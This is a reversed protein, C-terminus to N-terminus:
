VRRVWKTKPVESVTCLGTYEVFQRETMHNSLAQDYVTRKHIYRVTVPDFYHYSEGTQGAEIFSCAKYLGGSDGVNPDSFSVLLKLKPSESKYAGILKSMCYSSLNNVDLGSRVCFRRIERVSGPNLKGLGLQEATKKVTGHRTVGGFVLLCVLTDKFYAGYPSAATGLTGLYHNTTLFVHAEKLPVPRFELDSLQFQIPEEIARLIHYDLVKRLRGLHLEHEWLWVLKYKSYKEIYTAKAKDRPTGSYGNDKFNHLYDGHTEILLNCLPVYFDFSYPGVTFSREFPVKYHSELISAVIRETTPNQLKEKVGPIDFGSESGYLKLLTTRRKIAKCKASGCTLPHAQTYYSMKTESTNDCVYCKYIITKECLPFIKTAKYGFKVFTADDDAWAYDPPKRKSLWFDHKSQTSEERIWTAAVPSCLKCCVVKNSRSLSQLSTTYQELCFECVAEVAKESRPSLTDLGYGHKAITLLSDAGAPRKLVSLLYYERPTTQKQRVWHSKLQDCGSCADPPVRGPKSFQYKKREFVELCFDCQVVVPKKSQPALDSYRYGYKEVTLDDQHM